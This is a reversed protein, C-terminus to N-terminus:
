WKRNSGTVLRSKEHLKKEAAIICCSCCWSLLEPAKYIRAMTIIEERHPMSEGREIEGLRTKGIHLFPAAGVRSELVTDWAAARLRCDRFIKCPPDM